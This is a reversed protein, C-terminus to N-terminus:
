FVERYIPSQAQAFQASLLIAGALAMFKIACGTQQNIVTPNSRVIGTIALITSKMHNIVASSLVADKKHRKHLLTLFKQSSLQHKLSAQMADTKSSIQRPIEM